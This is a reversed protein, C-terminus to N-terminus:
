VKELIVISERHMTEAKAGVVNTPSNEMPMRKNPISRFLIGRTVFGLHEGLEAIITDTKLQVGKVTRNGVVLAFHGGRRLYREAHVFARELDRYFALVERARKEDELAILRVCQQLTASRSLVPDELSPSPKGGLLATDIDKRDHPILEFWQASLRSFQGYAVTTRSDGYPPSTLILAVSGDEIDAAATSDGHILRTPADSANAYFEAMGAISRRAVETFGEVIDYRVGHEIKGKDRVLKFEGNKTFSAFRVIESLCVHFFDILDPDGLAAIAQKVANIEEKKDQPFWFDMNSSAPFSIPARPHAMCQKVVQNLASRLRVPDIPTTKVKAILAALPNLEIGVAPRNLLRAEVLCTGSGCFIDAVTEGPQTFANILKRAVQPIFMAPYTHFGHTATKTKAGRFDWERMWERIAPSTIDSTCGSLEAPLSSFPIGFRLQRERPSAPHEAMTKYQSPNQPAQIERSARKYRELEETSFRRQGGPTRIPEVLRKAEMRYLTSVSVGLYDAAQSTTLWASV